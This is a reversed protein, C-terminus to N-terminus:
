SKAIQCRRGSAPLWYLRPKASTRNFLDDITQDSEQVAPRSKFQGAQGSIAERAEDVSIPTVTLSKTATEMPWKAGHLSEACKVAEDPSSYVVYCHDKLKSMM